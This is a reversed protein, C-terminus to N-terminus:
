FYWWPGKSCLKGVLSTSRTEIERLRKKGAIANVSVGFSNFPSLFSVNLYALDKPGGLFYFLPKTFSDVGNGNGGIGKTGGSNFIGLAKVRADNAVGYMEGGGCSQGAAAIRTGDVHAWEGKGANADVWDLSSLLNKYTSRGVTGFEAFTGTGNARPPGNAIVVVGQSALQILFPAM